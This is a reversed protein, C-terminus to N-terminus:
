PTKSILNSIEGTDLSITRVLGIGPCYFKHDAAGPELPTTELIKLCNTMTGFGPLTITETISLVEAIDEAV